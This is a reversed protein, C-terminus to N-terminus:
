EIACFICGLGVYSFQFLAKFGYEQSLTFGGEEQGREGEEGRRRTREEIAFRFAERRRGREERRGSQGGEKPM